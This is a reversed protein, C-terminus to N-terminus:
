ETMFSVEILSCNGSPAIVIVEAMTETGPLLFGDPVQFSSSGAPMQAVLGDNDNQELVVTYGAAAEMPEWTLTMGKTPVGVMGELPYTILPAPLLEHSLVASGLALAGQETVARMPYRGEGYTQLLESLTTEHTEVNFGAISRGGLQQARISLAKAGSPGLVEVTRLGAESEAEMKVVAENLNATYEIFIREEKLRATAHRPEPNRAGFLGAATLAILIPTPKM